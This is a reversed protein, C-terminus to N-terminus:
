VEGVEDLRHRGRTKGEFELRTALTSECRHPLGSVNKFTETIETTQLKPESGHRIKTESIQKIKNNRASFYATQIEHKAHGPAPAATM